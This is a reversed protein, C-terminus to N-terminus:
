VCVCVPECTCKIRIQMVMRYIHYPFQVCNQAGANMCALNLYMTKFIEMEQPVTRVHTNCVMVSIQQETPQFKEVEM